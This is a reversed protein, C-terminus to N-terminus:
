PLKKGNRQRVLNFDNADVTGDGNIDLYTLPISVPGLGYVQNRVIIADQSNVVGNDNVDGPLVDLRRTFEPLAPSTIHLTVRDAQDIPKSLIIAYTIPSFSVTLLTVPGYDAVAIGNVHVDAPDLGVMKDLEIRIVNLGTWPVDTTRGAPLMRVGDSQTVLPVVQGTPGRTVSTGTIAAVALTLLANGTHATGLSNTFVARFMKNNDAVTTTFTYTTSTAGSIDKFTQGFDTSVQWQVTPTPNGSAAATFAVPNGAVIAQSLPHTTIVPASQPNGVTFLVQAGGGVGVTGVAGGVGATGVFGADPTFTTTAAGGVTKASKPNATGHLTGFSVPSGDPISFGGLGISNHHIAFTATVSEGVALNTKPATMEAVLFPSFAVGAGFMAPNPLNTGLWNNAVDAIPSNAPNLDVLLGPDDFNPFSSAIWSNRATLSGSDVFIEDPIDFMSVAPDFTGNDIITAGQITATAAQSFLGGGRGTAVNSSIVTGQDITLNDSATYVGGGNLGPPPQPQNAASEGANNSLISDGHLELDTNTGGAHYIGGGGGPTGQPTTPYASTDNLQILTNTITVTPTLGGLSAWQTPDIYIAGGKAPTTDMSFADNQTFASNTITVQGGTFLAIAGGDGNSTNSRNVVVDTMTLNGATTGHFDFAGGENNQLTRDEALNQSTLTVGSLVINMYSWAGIPKGQPPNFSFVKDVNNTITIRSSGVGKITITEDAKRAFVDLDGRAPDSDGRFSDSPNITLAYTTRKSPNNPDFSLDPLDIETDAATNDAAMIAERLSIKRDPGPSQILATISTVTGDVVDQTTSVTVTSLLRRDELAAAGIDPRFSRTVARRRQPRRSTRLM